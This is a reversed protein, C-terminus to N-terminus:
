VVTELMQCAKNTKNRRKRLNNGHCTIRFSIADMYSSNNLSTCSMIVQMLECLALKSTSGTNGTDKTASQWNHSQVM